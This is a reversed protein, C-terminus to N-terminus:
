RARPSHSAPVPLQSGARLTYAFATLTGDKAPIGEVTVVDGPKLGGPNSTAQRLVSPGALEIVWHQMSGNAGKVDIDVYPHPNVFQFEAVRADFPLHHEDPTGNWALM